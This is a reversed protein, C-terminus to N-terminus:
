LDGRTDLITIKFFKMLVEAKDLRLSQEGKVFKSQRTIGTQKELALFSPSAKIRKRLLDTLNM